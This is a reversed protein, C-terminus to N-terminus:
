QTPKTWVVQFAKLFEERPIVKAHGDVFLSAYRSPSFLGGHWRGTGDYFVIMQAPGREEYPYDRNWAQLGAVPDDHLVFNTNYYYSSGYKEFSSPRTDLPTTEMRGGLEFGSDAPCHWIAKSKTYPDLVDPLPKFLRVIPEYPSGFWATPAHLDIPDGGLPFRDDYDEAYALTALGIQRLNSLCTTERAKGRASAFVPFLIAALLAIVAIVTLLEVLTFASRQSM